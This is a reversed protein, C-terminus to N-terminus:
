WSIKDCFPMWGPDLHFEVTARAASCSACPITLAAFFPIKKRNEKERDRKTNTKM